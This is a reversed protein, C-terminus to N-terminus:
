DYSEDEEKKREGNNGGKWDETALDEVEKILNKVILRLDILHNRKEDSIREGKRDELIQEGLVKMEDELLWKVGKLWFPLHIGSKIAEIVKKPVERM